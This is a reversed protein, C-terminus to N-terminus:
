AIPATERQVAYGEVAMGPMPRAPCLHECAGCGTCKAEDVRPVKPSAPDAPDLAVRVIAKSPCHRECASCDVGEQAAICADKRWVARGTRVARKLKPTLPRIAGAPCASGCATCEPRCYGRDFFMAPRMADAPATSPRLVHNPCAAVCVQCAVCRRRFAAQSRAGPPLPQVAREPTGPHSVPAFGGDFIKDAAAAAAAAGAFFGRRTLTVDPM